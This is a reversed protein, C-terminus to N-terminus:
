INSPGEHPVMEKKSRTSPTSVEKPYELAKRKELFGKDCGERTANTEILNNDARGKPKRRSKYPKKRPKNKSIPTRFSSANQTSTRFGMSCAWSSTVNDGFNASCGESGTSELRPLLSMLLGSWIASSLLKQNEQNKDVMKRELSNKEFDFVIGKGKDMDKSVNLPPELRM